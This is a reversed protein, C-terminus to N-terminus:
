QNDLKLKLGTMIRNVKKGYDNQLGVANGEDDIGIFLTGGDANM